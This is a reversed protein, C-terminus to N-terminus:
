EDEDEKDCVGKSKANKNVYLTALAIVSVLLSLFYQGLGIGIGLVATLFIEAATTIGYIHRGPTKYIIGAGIFGMGTLMGVVLRAPDSRVAVNAPYAHFVDTFGYASLIAIECAALCILVHTRVGVPKNKRQREIGFAIAIATAICLRFIIEAYSLSMKDM